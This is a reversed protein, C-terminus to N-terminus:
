CVRATQIENKLDEKWRDLVIINEPLVVKKKPKRPHRKQLEELLQDDSYESLSQHKRPLLEQQGGFRVKRDKDTNPTQCYRSDSICTLVDKLPWYFANNPLKFSVWHHKCPSRLVAKTHSGYKSGPYRCSLHLRWGKQVLNAVTCYVAGGASFFPFPGLESCEWLIEESSFSKKCKNKLTMSSTWTRKLFSTLRTM